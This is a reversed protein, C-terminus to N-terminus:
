LQYDVTSALCYWARETRSGFRFYVRRTSKYGLTKKISTHYQNHLLVETSISSSVSNVLAALELKKTCKPSNSNPQENRLNQKPIM